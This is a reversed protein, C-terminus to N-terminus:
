MATALVLHQLVADMTENMHDFRASPALIERESQVWRGPALEARCHEVLAAAGERRMEPHFQLGLVRNGIRFAQHSCGASRALLRAGAPLDFTDGHWHFVEPTAHEGTRLPNEEAGGLLEVPFWGIERETHPYVRAGLASAILQAGLCIGLVTRSAEIAGAILRKEPALWPHSAEDHVSMPGGMVILWDFDDVGPLSHAEYTHTGTLHMGRGRLWPEISGLTEFPVHRVYHVRM